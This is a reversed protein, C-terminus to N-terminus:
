RRFRRRTQRTALTGGEGIRGTYAAFADAPICRLHYELAIPEVTQGSM